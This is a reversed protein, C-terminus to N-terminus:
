LLKLFEDRTLDADRLIKSMLGRGISEGKHVPVVAGRGDDHRLFVHSGRQRVVVFSDTCLARVVDEGTLSPLRSM